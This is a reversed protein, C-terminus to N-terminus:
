VFSELQMRVGTGSDHSNDGNRSRDADRKNSGAKTPGDQPQLDRAELTEIGGLTGAKTPRDQPQLDRAELTEIGGLAITLQNHLSSTQAILTAVQAELTKVHAEIAASRVITAIDTVSQNVGELTTPSIKMLTEVIEDWTDIIGYSTQEVM